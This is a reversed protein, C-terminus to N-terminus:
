RPFTVRGVMLPTEMGVEKVMLMFNHDFVLRKVNISNQELERRTRNYGFGSRSALPLLELTNHQFVTSDEPVKGLSRLTPTLSLSSVLSLRPLVIELNTRGYDSLLFDEWSVDLLHGTKLHPLLLYLELNDQFMDLLVVTYTPFTAMRGKWQFQTFKLPKLSGSPDMWHGITEIPKIQVNSKLKVNTSIVIVTKDDSINEIDKIVDKDLVNNEKLWRNVEVKGLTAFLEIGPCTAHNIDNGRKYIKGSLRTSSTNKHLMGCSPSSALSNVSALSSVLLDPSFLITSSSKHYIDEFVHILPLGHVQPLKSHTLTIKSLLPILLFCLSVLIVVLLLLLGLKPRLSGSVALRSAHIEPLCKFVPKRTQHTTTPLSYRTQPNQPVSM